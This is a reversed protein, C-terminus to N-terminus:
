RRWEHSQERLEHPTSGRGAAVDKEAAALKQRLYLRYILEDVDIQDPLQRVLDLIEDKSLVM